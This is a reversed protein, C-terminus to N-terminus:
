LIVLHQALHNRGADRYRILIIFSVQYVDNTQIM